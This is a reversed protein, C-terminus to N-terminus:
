AQKKIGELIWDLTEQKECMKAPIIYKKIELIKRIQANEGRESLAPRIEPHLMKESLNIFNLHRSGNEEM